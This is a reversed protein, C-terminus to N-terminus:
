IDHETLNNQNFCDAPATNQVQSSGYDLNLNRSWDRSFGLGSESVIKEIRLMIPAWDQGTLGFNELSCFAEKEPKVKLV